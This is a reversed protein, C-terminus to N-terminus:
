SFFFLFFIAVIKFIVTAASLQQLQRENDKSFSLFKAIAHKNASDYKNEKAKWNQSTNIHVFKYHLKIKRNLMVIVYFYVKWKSLM